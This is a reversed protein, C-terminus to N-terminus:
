FLVIKSTETAESTRIEIFYIGRALNAVDIKVNNTLAEVSSDTYVLAGTQDYINVQELTGDNTIFLANSCPNPYVSINKLDAYNIDIGTTVSITFLADSDDTDSGTGTGVRVLCKTSPTNNVVWAYSGNNNASPNIKMWSNGSDTSYFIPIISQQIGVTTWTINMTSGVIWNEGGNPSTVTVSAFSLSSIFTAILLLTKKM